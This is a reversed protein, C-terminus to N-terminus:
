EETEKATGLYLDRFEELAKSTIAEADIDASAVLKTLQEESVNEDDALKELELMKDDPLAALLARNVYETERAVLEKVMDQEVEPELDTFGKEILLSKAIVELIQENSMKGLANRLEEDTMENVGNNTNEM